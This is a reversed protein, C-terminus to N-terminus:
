RMENEYMRPEDSERQEHQGSLHIRRIEERSKWLFWRYNEYPAFVKLLFTMVNDKRSVLIRRIEFHDEEMGAPGSFAGCAFRFGAKRVMEKVTTNVLGYPYAFTRVPGNLLNELFVRSRSIEEWAKQQPIMPLRPHTLSHAGIEFGNQHLELIQKDDLLRSSTTEDRVSDWINTTIRRDGLVFVVAKMGFEKLIPFALAHTDEYGDDFTIIIAKRPLDLRGELFLAYDEFTISTFGWRDLLELQRRFDDESVCLTKDTLGYGNPVIRHYLFIKIARSNRNPKHNASTPRTNVESV